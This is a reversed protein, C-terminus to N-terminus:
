ANGLMLRLVLTGTICAVLSASFVRTSFRHLLEETVFIVAALPANFAVALGAGAGAAILTWPERLYRHLADAILRGVTGGMQVTPGERGLALGSGIGLLGGIFKVPLIWFTAPKLHHRLVSEVRPIGSGATQPALTQTLYCAMAAGASCIFMPAAWGLWGLQHEHFWALMRNRDNALDTLAIRFAGGVLGTAAGVLAAVLMLFLWEGANPPLRDEDAAIQTLKRSAIETKTAGATSTPFPDRHHRFRLQLSM